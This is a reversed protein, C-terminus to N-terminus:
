DSLSDNIPRSVKASVIYNLPRHLHSVGSSGDREIQITVVTGRISRQVHWRIKRGAIHWGIGWKSSQIGSCVSDILQAVDAVAVAKVPPRPLIRAERRIVNAAEGGVVIQPRPHAMPQ